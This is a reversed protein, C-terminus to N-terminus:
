ERANQELWQKAAARREEMTRPKRAPATAALDNLTGQPAQQGAQPPDGVAASQPTPPTPQARAAIHQEMKAALIEDNLVVPEGTEQEYAKYKAIVEYALQLRQAPQLGSLHPFRAQDGAVDQFAGERAAQEQEQQLRGRTKEVLEDPDVVRAELDAIKARLNREIAASDPSRMETVLERLVGTREAPPLGRWTEVFTDKSLQTGATLKGSEKLQRYEAADRADAESQERSVRQQHRASIQSELAGIDPIQVEVVPAAAPEGAAEASPPTETEPPDDAEELSDFDMALIAARRGEMTDPAPSAVAEATATNDIPNSM